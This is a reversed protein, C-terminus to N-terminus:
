RHVELGLFSHLRSERVMTEFTQPWTKSQISISLLLDEMRERLERRAKGLFFILDFFNERKKLLLVVRM